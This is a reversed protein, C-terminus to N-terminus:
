EEIELDFTNGKRLPNLIIRWKNLIPRGLIVEDLGYDIFREVVCSLGPVSVELLYVGYDCVRGDLLKIAQRDQAHLNHERILGAPISSVDSGTDLLADASFKTM